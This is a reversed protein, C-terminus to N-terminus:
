LALCCPNTWRMRLGVEQYMMRGTVDRTTLLDVLLFEGPSEGGEQQLVPAPIRGNEPRRRGRRQGSDEDAAAAMRRGFLGGDAAVLEGRPRRWHEEVVVTANGMGSLTRGDAAAAAGPLVAGGIKLDLGCAMDAQEYQMLRILDGKCFFNGDLVMVWYPDFCAPHDSSSGSSSGSSSSSSLLGRRGDQMQRSHRSRLHRRLAKISSSESSSSSSSSDGSGGDGSSSSSSSSGSSSDGGGNCHAARAQADFFPEIVANRLRAKFDVPHELPRTQNTPHTTPHTLLLINM